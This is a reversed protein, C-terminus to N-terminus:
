FLIKLIREKIRIKNPNINCPDCNISNRNDYIICGFCPPNENLGNNDVPGDDELSRLM